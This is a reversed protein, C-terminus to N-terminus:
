SIRLVMGQMNCFILLSINLVIQIKKLPSDALWHLLSHPPPKPLCLWMFLNRLIKGLILYIIKTLCMQILSFKVTVFNNQSFLLIQHKLHGLSWNYQLGTSQMGKRICSWWCAFNAWEAFDGYNKFWHYSQLLKQSKYHGLGLHFVTNRGRQHM